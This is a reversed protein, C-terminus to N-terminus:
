ILWSGKLRPIIKSLSNSFLPNLAVRRIPFSTRVGHVRELMGIALTLCRLDTVDAEMREEPTMEDRQKTRQLSRDKSFTIDSHSDDFTQLGFLDDAVRKVLCLLV